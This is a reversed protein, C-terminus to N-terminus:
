IKPAMGILVNALFFGTWVTPTSSGWGLPLIAWGLSICIYFFIAPKRRGYIDYLAGFIWTVVVYCIDNVSGVDNSKKLADSEPIKYIGKALGFENVFLYYSLMNAMFPAFLMVFFNMFTISPGRVNVFCFSKGKRSLIDEMGYRDERSTDTEKTDNLRELEIDEPTNHNDRINM